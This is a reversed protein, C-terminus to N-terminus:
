VPVYSMNGDMHLLVVLLKAIISSIIKYLNLKFYNLGRSFHPHCGNKPLGFSLSNEGVGCPIGCFTRQVSPIHGWIPLVFFLLFSLHMHLYIVYVTM